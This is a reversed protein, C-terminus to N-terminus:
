SDYLKSGDVFMSEDLSQHNAEVSKELMVARRRRRRGFGETTTTLLLCMLLAVIIVKNM